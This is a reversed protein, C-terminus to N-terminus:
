VYFFAVRSYVSVHTWDLDGGIGETWDILAMSLEGEVSVRVVRSLEPVEFVRIELMDSEAIPRDAPAQQTATGAVAPLTISGGNAANATGSPVPEGASTKAACGPLLLLLLTTLQLRTNRM